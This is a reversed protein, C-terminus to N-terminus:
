SQGTGSRHAGSQPMLGLPPLGTRPQLCFSGRADVASARCQGSGAVLVYVSLVAIRVM